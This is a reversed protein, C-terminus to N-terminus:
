PTYGLQVGVGADPSGDALGATAYLAVKWHPRLRYSGFPVLELRKGSFSSPAQRYDLMLGLQMPDFVRYQAGISGQFVDHLPLEPSSGLFLYGVTAFPTLRDVTWTLDSEIGVDVKGTGLGRSRSATPVKLYTALDIWPMWPSDVLPSVTYAGRLIVDGLGDETGSVAQIPGDPGQVLGGGSTIRLYPITARLTWNGLLTELTLPVYMIDTTSETGYDGTSYHYGVMAEFSKEFAVAPLTTGALLALVFTMWKM